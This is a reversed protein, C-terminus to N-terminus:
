DFKQIVDDLIDKFDFSFLCDDNSIISNLTLEILGHQFPKVENTFFGFSM